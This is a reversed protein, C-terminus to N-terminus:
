GPPKTLLRKANEGTESETNNDMTIDDVDRELPCMDQHCGTDVPAMHPRRVVLDKEEVRTQEMM